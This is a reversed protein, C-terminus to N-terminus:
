GAGVTFAGGHIWFLVPRKGGDAAPTYVNLYLCDECQPGEAGAGPAFVWGQLAAAQDYTRSGRTFDSALAEFVPLAKEAGVERYLRAAAELRPDLADARGQWPVALLAGLALACVVSTTQWAM